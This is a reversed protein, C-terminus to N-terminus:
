RRQNPTGICQRRIGLYRPDKEMKNAASLKLFEDHPVKKMLNEIVCRCPSILEKHYQTCAIMFVPIADPSWLKSSPSKPAPPSEPSAPVDPKSAETPLTPQSPVSQALAPVAFLAILAIAFFHRM